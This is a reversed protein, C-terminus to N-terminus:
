HRLSSGGLTTYLGERQTFWVSLTRQQQRAAKTRAVNETLPPRCLLAAVAAPAAIHSPQVARNICPLYIGRCWLKRCCGHIRRCPFCEECVGAKAATVRHLGIAADFGNFSRCRAVPRRILPPARPPLCVPPRITCLRHQHAAAKTQTFTIPHYCRYTVVHARGDDFYVTTMMM